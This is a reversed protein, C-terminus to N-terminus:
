RKLASKKNHRIIGYMGKSTLLFFLIMREIKRRNSIYMKGYGYEKVLVKIQWKLGSKIM